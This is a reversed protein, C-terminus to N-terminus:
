QPHQLEVDLFTEQREEQSESVVKRDRTKICTQNRANPFELTHVSMSANQQMCRSDPCRLLTQASLQSLSSDRAAGHLLAWMLIAGPKKDLGRGASSNQGVLSEEPSLSILCVKRTSQITEPSVETLFCLCKESYLATPFHFTLIQPCTQFTCLGM